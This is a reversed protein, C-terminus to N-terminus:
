PSACICKCERECVCWGGTKEETESGGKRKQRALLFHIIIHDKIRGYEGRGLGCGDAPERESKEYEIVFLGGM